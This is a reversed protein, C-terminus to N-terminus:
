IIIGGGLICDNEDYFVAAQGPTAARVPKEFEIKVKGDGAPKIEANEGAHHYRIKVKCNIREGTNLPEIGMFNVDRVFIRDTYLADESSVVVENKDARIEKVYAPYGLALDLGKRQGVTYHIIGKHRGLVNGNEDVFSGGGQIEGEANEKIFDAYGGDIVFCIEQSDAKEAVPIGAKKAIERVDKKSLKSLPMLTKKLQEQSLGYLMYSQDKESHLSKQVTYRGNQLKIIRAYHGTAIFDAEIVKAASLMKDWKIKKNCGTCPNPTLGKIYDETFPKIVKEQFESLCNLAYYPIGIKYSVARADDIECCRGESGDSAVWTRLTVGVVEHGQEKLLYAAVASDVGGSM